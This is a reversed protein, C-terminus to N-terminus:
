GDDGALVEVLEGEGGLDRGLVVDVYDGVLGFVGVEAGLEEGLDGVEDALGAGGVGRAVVVDVVEEEGEGVDGTAFAELVALGGVVADAFFAKASSAWWEGVGVQEGM